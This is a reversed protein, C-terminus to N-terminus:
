VRGLTEGPLEDRIRKVGRKNHQVNQSRTRLKGKTLDGGGNLFGNQNYRSGVSALNDHLSYRDRDLNYAPVFMKPPEDKVVPMAPVFVKPEERTKLHRLEQQIVGLESHVKQQQNNLSRELKKTLTVMDEVLPSYENYKKLHFEQENAKFMRLEDQITGIEKNLKQQQANLTRELKRTSGV